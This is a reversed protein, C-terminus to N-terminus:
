KYIIKSKILSSNYIYKNYKKSFRKKYIIYNIQFKKRSNIWANFERNLNYLKNIIIHSKTIKM